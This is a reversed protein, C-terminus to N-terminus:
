RLDDPGQWSQTSPDLQGVLENGREGMRIVAVGSTRFPPFAPGFGSLHGAMARVLPEHSVLAVIDDGGHHELMSLSHVLGVGPVLEEHVLVPGAFGISHALIEATQVARTLPSTYIHTPALNRERLAEAMARSVHRGRLTLYRSADSLGDPDSAEGHRIVLVHM